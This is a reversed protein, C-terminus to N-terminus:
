ALKSSKRLDGYKFFETPAKWSFLFYNETDRNQQLSAARFHRATKTDHPMPRRTPMVLPPPCGGPSRGAKESTGAPVERLKVLAYLLCALWCCSPRARVTPLGALSCVSLVLKETSGPCVLLLCVPSAQADLASSPRPVSRYANTLRTCARVALSRRIPFGLAAM